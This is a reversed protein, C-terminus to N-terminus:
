KKKLSKRMSGGKPHSRTNEQPGNKADREKRREAREADRKKEEELRKKYDDETVHEADDKLRFFKRISAETGFAIQKSKCLNCSFSYRKPHKTVRVMGQCDKCFFLICSDKKASRERLEKLKQREEVVVSSGEDRDTNTAQVKEKTKKTMLQM